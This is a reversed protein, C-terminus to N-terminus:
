LMPRGTGTGGREGAPLLPTTELMREDFTQSTAGKLDLLEAAEGELANIARRIYWLNQYPLLRRLMHVDSASVGNQSRVFTWEYADQLTGLAPGGYASLVNADSYRSSEGLGLRRGIPAWLDPLIGLLGSETLAEGAAAVPDTTLERGANLNRLSYSLYGGVMVAGVFRASALYERNAALQMPYTALKMPSALAFSKIQGLVRGLESDMWWVRDAAGPELVLIRSEKLVAADYVEALRADRWDASGSLRIGDFEGGARVAEEHVRRLTASDLGLSALRAQAFRPLAEGRAANAAVRLVEDEFLSASLTRYLDTVHNLGSYRYVGEALRQTWGETIAGDAAAHVRRALSAEVAAGLRRANDMSLNRFERSAVLRALRGFTRAYGYTAVIRHLDAAGATVATGGLRASAVLNRWGRAMEVARRTGEGSEPNLRGARGYIRDRIRVIAELTEREDRELQTLRASAADTRDAMRARERLIEFEDRIRQMADRMERDGFRRTVEIQPALERTYASAVKVPDNVLFREIEADDIGLVRERLPGAEPVIARVNFNAQGVDGGLINRTVAEAAARAEVLSVGEERGIRYFYRTVVADWERRHRRIMDRDYMRRFYSEAGVVQVDDPLLKLRQAEHKLPDFVRARLSAAARTVEEIGSEDGRRAAAAVSAEFESRSMREPRSVRARYAKWQAKLEHAFTAVRGEHRLVLSEVSTPTAVDDLNKTLVPSIDSLEQLAVRAAASESTLIRQADTGVLPTRAAFRTLTQGGVAVSEAALTTPRVVAAAGVESRLSGLEEGIARGIADREERPVTRGLAGLVGSLVAGASVQVAGEQWTRTEDLAQMGVEYAGAVAAGEVTAQLMRATRVSRALALQPVGLAVLFSPDALQLAVGAATSGLGARRMVDEDARKADIRAKIGAVEAPSDAFMFADADDEYGAVHDLPDFGDPADPGDPDRNAILREYARGPLTQRAFAATADLLSPPDSPTEPAAETAFLSDRVGGVLADTYRPDVTVPM